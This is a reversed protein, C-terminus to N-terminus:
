SHYDKTVSPLKFQKIAQDFDQINHRSVPIESDTNLLKLRYGLTNGKKSIIMKVNVIFARHTRIFYPIVSLQKEIESISNRIVAKRIHDKDKLYFVVYNGDSEAYVFDSAYFSLEEKKLRSEIQIPAETVGAPPILNFNSEYNQLVEDVFLHRYNLISFFGFPLIGVLFANIFSDFFTPFNWRSSSQELFFGTFFISSGMVLLILFISFIEKGFNWESQDSFYNMNKLIKILGFIFVSATFCYVAITVAYNFYQSEHTKLPKYINAFVICFVFFVLTGTIPNKLIYNQPFRKTLLKYIKTRM